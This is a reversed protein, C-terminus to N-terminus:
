RWGREIIGVAGAAKADLGVCLQVSLERLVFPVQCPGTSPRRRSSASKFGLHRPEIPPDRLRDRPLYETGHAPWAAGAWHYSHYIRSRSHFMLNPLAMLLSSACLALSVLGYIGYITKGSREATVPLPTNPATGHSSSSCRSVLSDSTGNLVIDGSNRYITLSRAGVPEAPVFTYTENGNTYRRPRPLNAPTPSYDVLLHHACLNLRQHLAKM